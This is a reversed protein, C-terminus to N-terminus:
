PSGTRESPPPGSATDLGASPMAEPAGIPRDHEAAAFSGKMARKLAAAAGYDADPATAALKGKRAERKRRLEARQRVALAAM